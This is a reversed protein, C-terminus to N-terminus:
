TPAGISLFATFPVRGGDSGHRRVVETFANAAAERQAADLGSVLPIVPASWESLSRFFAPPDPVVLDHVLTQVEVDRWGAAATMTACGDARGLPHETTPPLAVDPAATRVAEAVLVSLRPADNRWSTVAVRGGPRTARALERLGAPIDPFFIVGFNSAAVDFSDDAVDLAQGDMVATRVTGPGVSTAAGALAEVMGPAFDTALVDAGRAAARLAFAGTGAAVDLVTDSATVGVGQVLDAAFAGTFPAFVTAYQEAGPGWGEPTQQIPRDTM